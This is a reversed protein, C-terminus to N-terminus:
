HLLAVDVVVVAVGNGPVPTVQNYYKPKSWGHFPSTQLVSLSFFFTSFNGKVVQLQDDM